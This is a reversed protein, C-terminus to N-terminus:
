RRTEKPPKLALRYVQSVRESLRGTMDVLERSDVRAQGVREDADPTAWQVASKVEKLEGLLTEAHGVYETLDSALEPHREEFLSALRSASRSTEEIATEYRGLVDTPPRTPAELYRNHASTLSEFSRLLYGAGSRVSQVHEQEKRWALLRDILGVALAMTFVGSGLNLLLGTEFDREHGASLRWAVSILVTSIVLLCVALAPGLRRFLGRRVTLLVGM